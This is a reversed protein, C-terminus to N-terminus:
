KTAVAFTVYDAHPGHRDLVERNLYVDAFGGEALMSNTTDDAFCHEWVDFRRVEEETLLTYRIRQALVQPELTTASLVLHPGRAWFGRTASAEWGRCPRHRDAVAADLYDLM